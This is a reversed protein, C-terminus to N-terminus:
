TARRSVNWGQPYAAAIADIVDDTNRAVFAIGGHSLVTHLFAAQEPTPHEGERKVEVALLRGDRLQGLIDACGAFAFQVVRSREANGGEAMRAVGSNMRVAWAVCPHARLGRLVAYLIPRELARQRERKRHVAQSADVIDLAQQLPAAATRAASAALLDLQAGTDAAERLEGPAAGATVTAGRRQQYDALWAADFESVWGGPAAACGRPAREM